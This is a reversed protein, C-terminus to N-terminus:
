DLFGNTMYKSRPTSTKPIFIEITAWIDYVPSTYKIKKYWNGLSEPWETSPNSVETGSLKRHTQQISTCILVPYKKNHTMKLFNGDHLKIREALITTTKIMATSPYNDCETVIIEHIAYGGRQNLNYNQKHHWMSRPWKLSIIM